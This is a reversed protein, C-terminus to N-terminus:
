HQDSYLKVFLCCDSVLGVSNVVGGKISSRFVVGLTTPQVARQGCGRSLRREQSQGKLLAECQSTHM